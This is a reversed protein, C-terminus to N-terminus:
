LIKNHLYLKKRKNDFLPICGGYVYTYIHERGAVGQSLTDMNRYHSCLSRHSLQLRVPPVINGSGVEICEITSVIDGSGVEICEITNRTALHSSELGDIALLPFHSIFSCM